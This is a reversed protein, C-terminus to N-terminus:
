KKTENVQKETEKDTKVNNKTEKRGFKMRQKPEPPQVKLKEPDLNEETIRKDLRKHTKEQLVTYLVSVFPIMMFMGVIGFLKGGVAIALLVWMGSLGVSNGVVRPYILNGEIQQLVLFLVVFLVAQMPNDPNKMLILFAGIICGAFAGVIPIFATVAILISILAIFPMRFIAMTIAFMVGLICVEICQGSLFNSFTANSLRMIRITEDAFKEPFFAYLLKRGQRALTEKQGLCYLAFVIAIVFNVIAGGIKGVTSFAGSIISSVSSGWTDLLQTFLDWVDKMGFENLDIGDLEISLLPQLRSLFGNLFEYDRLKTELAGYADIIAFTLLVSIAGVVITFAVLTLTIAIIRRLKDKKVFKFWKEFACMPVNLVFAMAAGLVFPGFIGKITNFVLKVRVENNLLWYLLISGCAVALAAWIIRKLKNKNIEPM